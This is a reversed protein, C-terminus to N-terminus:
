SHATALGRFTRFCRHLFFSSSAALQVWTVSHESASNSVYQKPLCDFSSQVLLSVRSFWEVLKKKSRSLAWSASLFDTFSLFSSHATPFDIFQTIPEHAVGALPFFRREAYKQVCDFCKKGFVVRCDRNRLVRFNLTLSAQVNCGRECYRGAWQNCMRLPAEVRRRRSSARPKKCM